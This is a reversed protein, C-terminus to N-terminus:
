KYSCYKANKRSKIIEFEKDCFLCLKQIRTRKKFRLKGESYLKEKRHFLLTNINNEKLVRYIVDAGCNFKRGIERLNLLEEEYLRIIEQTQEETFIKKNSPILGKQFGKIGKPM